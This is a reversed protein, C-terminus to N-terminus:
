FSVPKLDDEPIVNPRGSSRARFFSNYAHGRQWNMNQWFGEQLVPQTPPLPRIIELYLHKCYAIYSSM